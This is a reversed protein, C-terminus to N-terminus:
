DLSSVTKTVYDDLQRLIQRDTEMGDPLYDGDKGYMLSGWTEDVYNNEVLDTLIRGVVRDLGSLGRDVRHYTYLELIVEDLVSCDIKITNM